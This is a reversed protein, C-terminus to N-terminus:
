PNLLKNYLDKITPNSQFIGVIEVHDYKTYIVGCKPCEWINSLERKDKKTCECNIGYLQSDLEVVGDHKGINYPYQLPFFPFLILSKSPDIINYNRLRVTAETTIRMTKMEYAEIVKMGQDSVSKNNKPVMSMIIHDENKDFFSYRWSFQSLFVDYVIRYLPISILYYLQILGYVFWALGFRKSTYDPNFNGAKYYTVGGYPSSITIVSKFHKPTIIWSEGNDKIFHLKGEIDDMGQPFPITTLNKEILYKHQEALLHLMRLITPGGASHGILTYKGLDEENNTEDENLTIKGHYNTEDRKSVKRTHNHDPNYHIYEGPVLAYFLERARDDISSFPGIKPVWTIKKDLIGWYQLRFAETSGYTGLGGVFIIDGNIESNYFLREVINQILYKFFYFVKLDLYIFFLVIYELVYM